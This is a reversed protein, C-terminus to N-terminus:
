VGSKCMLLMGNRHSVAEVLSWLRDSTAKNSAPLLTTRGCPSSGRDEPDSGSTSGNCWPRIFCDEEIKLPSSLTGRMAESKLPVVM